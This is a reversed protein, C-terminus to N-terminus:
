PWPAPLDALARLRSRVRAAMDVRDPALLWQVQLGDLLAILEVELGGTGVGPRLLRRRDLDALAQSVDRRLDTYRRVFYPHAPHAPDCAEASLVAFLSVIGPHAQNHEIVRVLRRFYDVGDAAPDHDAFFMEGNVRDREVLVAELLAEKTPFHHGLGARSVGCAAAIGAMTAQHYGVTGFVALAAAVIETRRRRGKGYGDGQPSPAPEPLPAPVQAPASLRTIAERIEASDKPAADLASHLTLGEALASLLRATLPDFHQELATRSRGTWAATIDRFSPDRAALTYLEHTLVLDRPSSFVEEATIAVVADVARARDEAATLREQFRQSVKRAFRTLAERLLEDMGSFHYTMSGLPVDAAQAIRRHSAGAVGVSAIVELCADIIRDRRNPDYRRSM